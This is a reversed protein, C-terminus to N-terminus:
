VELSEEPVLPLSDATARPASQTVSIQREPEALPRIRARVESTAGHKRQRCGKCGRHLTPARAARSNPGSRAPGLVRIPWSVFSFFIAVRMGRGTWPGSVRGEGVSGGEIAQDLGVSLRYGVIRRTQPLLRARRPKSSTVPHRHTALSVRWSAGPGERVREAGGGREVCM